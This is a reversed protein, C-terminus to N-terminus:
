TLRLTLLRRWIDAAIENLGYFESQDASMMVIEGCMETFNIAKSRVLLSQVKIEQESISNKRASNSISELELPERKKVKAMARAFKEQSARAARERIYDDARLAALFIKIDHFLSKRM